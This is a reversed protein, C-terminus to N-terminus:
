FISVFPLAGLSLVLSTVLKSALAVCATNLPQPPLHQLAQFGLKSTLSLSVQLSREPPLMKHAPGGNTEGGQSEGQSNGCTGSKTERCGTLAGESSDAWM